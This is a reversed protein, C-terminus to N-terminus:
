QCQWIRSESISLDQPLNLVQNPVVCKKKDHQVRNLMENLANTNILLPASVKLLSIM